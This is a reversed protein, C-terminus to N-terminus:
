GDEGTAAVMVGGGTPYILLVDKGPTTESGSKASRVSLFAVCEPWGSVPEKIGRSALYAAGM